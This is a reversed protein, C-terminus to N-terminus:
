ISDLNLTFKPDLFGVYSHDIAFYKYVLTNHSKVLERNNRLNWKKYKVVNLITINFINWDVVTIRTYLYCSRKWIGTPPPLQIYTDPPPIRLSHRFNPLIRHRMHLYIYGNVGQARDTATTNTYRPAATTHHVQFKVLSGAPCTSTVSKEEKWGGRDDERRRRTYSLAWSM